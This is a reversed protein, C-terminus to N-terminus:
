SFKTQLEGFKARIKKSLATQQYGAALRDLHSLVYMGLQIDREYTGFKERELSAIYTLEKDLFDVTANTLENAAKTEKLAYMNQITQYRTITDDISYNKLPIEKVNKILLNRAQIPKGEMILNSTLTNSIAWTGQAVRRSEPDLYKATNLGKLDFRHMLNNYMMDSNTREMKDRQDTRTLKLHCCAFHM